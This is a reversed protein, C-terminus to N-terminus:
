PEFSIMTSAWDLSSDSNIKDEESENQIRLDELHKFYPIIPLLLICQLFTGFMLVDFLQIFM